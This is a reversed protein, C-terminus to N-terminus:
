SSSTPRARRTARSPRSRPRFSASGPTDTVVAFPSRGDERPFVGKPIPLTARLLFPSEKPAPVEIEAVPRRRSNSRRSGVGPANSPDASASDPLVCLLALALATFSWRGLDLAM